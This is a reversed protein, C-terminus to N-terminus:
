VTENSVFVGEASSKSANQYAIRAYEGGAKDRGMQRQAITLQIKFLDKIRDKRFEIADDGKFGEHRGVLRFDNHHLSFPKRPDQIGSSGGLVRTFLAGM